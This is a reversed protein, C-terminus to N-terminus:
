GTAPDWARVCRDVGATVLETGCPTFKLSMAGGDHAIAAGGGNGINSGVGGVSGSTNDQRWDLSMMVANSSGKRIDWIKVSKDLSSSAMINSNSPCFDISTVVRRHSSLVHTSGGTRLDCLRVDGGEVGCGVVSGEYHMRCTNVFGLFKFDVVTRFSETDWLKCSMDYSSTVFAGCDKPFWQVATIAAGRTHGHRGDSFKIKNVRMKKRFFDRYAGRLDFLSVRGDAGGAVAYNGDIQDVDVALLAGTHPSCLEFQTSACFEDTHRRQRERTNIHSQLAQLLPAYAGPGRRRFVSELCSERDM